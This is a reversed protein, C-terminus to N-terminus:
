EADEQAQREEAWRCLQSLFEQASEKEGAHVYVYVSGSTGFAGTTAPPVYEVHFGAKQLIQRVLEAESPTRATYVVALGEPAVSSLPVVFPNTPECCILFAFPAFIKELISRRKAKDKEKKKSM